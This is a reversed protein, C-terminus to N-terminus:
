HIPQVAAPCNRQDIPYLSNTPFHHQKVVEEAAHVHEVSPVRERTLIWLMEALVIIFNIVFLYLIHYTDFLSFITQSFYWSPFPSFAMMNFFYKGTHGPQGIEMCNYVVAYNAYDTGLVFYNPYKPYDLNVTLNRLHIGNSIMKSTYNILIVKLSPWPSNEPLLWVLLPKTAKSLVLETFSIM